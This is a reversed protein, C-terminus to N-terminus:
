AILGILGSLKGNVRATMYTTECYITKHLWTGSILAQCYTNTHPRNIYEERNLGTLLFVCSRNRSALYGSATITDLKANYVYYPM